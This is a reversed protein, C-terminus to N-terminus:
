GKWAGLLRRVAILQGVHYSTHDVAVLITRLYTQGSGWPIEKTLDVSSTAVRKIRLTDAHIAGVSKQWAAVSPPKPDSPWYEDPWAPAEYDPNTLFNALDAQALRIHELLEWPSHPFRPPRKGRLAPALGKAAADLTAHGQEWDLASAVIKRWAPLRTKGSM